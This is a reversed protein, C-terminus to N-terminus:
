PSHPLLHCGLTGRGGWGQRPTLNLLKSTGERLVRITITQNESQAVFTALPQLSGSTFSEHTLAGFKVVLDERQLGADAAPSGPAVANVRAFPTLTSAQAESSADGSAATSPPPQLSPDYVGELARAISNMVGSLDNRLEIIRVRARRIAYIDLDARPFGEADVLPAQMTVSNTQLIELQTKLEAEIADKQSMLVRAQEMPTIPPSSGM